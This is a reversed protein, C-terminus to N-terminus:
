AGLAYGSASLRRKSFLFDHDGDFDLVAGRFPGFGQARSTAPGMDHFPEAHRFFLNEAPIERVIARHSKRHALAIRVIVPSNRTLAIHLLDGPNEQGFLRAAGDTENRGLPKQFDFPIICFDNGVAETLGFICSYASPAGETRLTRSRSHQIECEYPLGTMRFSCKFSCCQKRACCYADCPSDTRFWLSARFALPERRSLVRPFVRACRGTGTHSRGGSELTAAQACAFVVADITVVKKLSYHGKAPFGAQSESKIRRYHPATSSVPFPHRAPEM